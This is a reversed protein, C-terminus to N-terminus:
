EVPAIFYFKEEITILNYIESNEKVLKLIKEDHVYYLADSELRNNIIDEELKNNIEAAKNKDIRSFYGFNVKIKYKAAFISLKVFNEPAYYPYVYYLKKYKKGVENWKKDNLIYKSKSASDGYRISPKDLKKNLYNHYPYMDWIQLVLCLGLIYITNRPKTNKILLILIGLYILYVVPWIFRGSVRFTETILDIIPPIGFSLLRYEGFSIKNSLSYILFLLALYILIKVDLNIKTKLKNTCYCFSLYILILIPGIGLFAFGEYDGSQDPSPTYLDPFIRSANIGWGPSPDILANANAKFFDYGSTMFNLGIAYYGFLVQLSLAFFLFLFFDKLLHYSSKRKLKYEKILSALFLGTSMAFFYPHILLSLFTLFLWKKLNFNQLYLYIGFLLIWQGFLAEHSWFLRYTFIPSILFFGVCIASIVFSSTFRRVLLYSFIGQLVFCIYIWLGFYQFHFPLSSKFIKFIIGMIPVSDSHILSSSIEMGYAYNKFLPFQLLESNKFFLWAIYHQESDTVIGTPGFLWDVNNFNIIGGGTTLFFVVSSLFAIGFLEITKNNQLQM